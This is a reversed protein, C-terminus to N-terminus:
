LSPTLLLLPLLFIMTSSAVIWKNIVIWKDIVIASNYAYRNEFGMHSSYMELGYILQKVSTPKQTPRLM